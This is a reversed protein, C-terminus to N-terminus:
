RLSRELADLLTSNDFPKKLFATAGARLAEARMVGDEHASIFIIPMPRPRTMLRRQLDLGNMGPLRIDLIACGTRDLDGRELFDEASGFADVGFGASRVLRELSRRFLQDDDVIAVLARDTPEVYAV